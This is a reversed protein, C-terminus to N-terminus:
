LIVIDDHPLLVTDEGLTEVHHIGEILDIHEGLGGLDVDIGAGHTELGVAHATGLQGLHGLGEMEGLLLVCM